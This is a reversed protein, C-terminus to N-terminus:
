RVLKFRESRLVAKKVPDCKVPVFKQHLDSGLTIKGLERHNYFNTEYKSMSGNVCNDAWLYAGSHSVRM